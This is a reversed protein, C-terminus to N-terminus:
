VREHHFEHVNSDFFMGSSVCSTFFLTHFMYSGMKKETGDKPDSGCCVALEKAIPIVIGGVRASISPILPAIVMECVVLSSCLGFTTKGLLTVCHFAMRKGIGCKVFGRSLFM